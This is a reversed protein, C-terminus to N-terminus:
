WWHRVRYTGDKHRRHHQGGVNACLHHSGGVMPVEPVKRYLRRHRGGGRTGVM